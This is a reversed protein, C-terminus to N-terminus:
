THKHLTAIANVSEAKDMRCSLFFVHSAHVVSVFPQSFTFSDTGSVHRYEMSSPDWHSIIQYVTCCMTHCAHWRVSVDNIIRIIKPFRYNKKNFARYRLFEVPLHDFSLLFCTDHSNVAATIVYFRLWLVSNLLWLRFFQVVSFYYKKNRSHEIFKRVAAM